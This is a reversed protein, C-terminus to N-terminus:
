TVRWLLFGKCLRKQRIDLTMQPWPRLLRNCKWESFGAPDRDPMRHHHFIRCAPKQPPSIKGLLRFNMHSTVSEVIFGTKRDHQDM